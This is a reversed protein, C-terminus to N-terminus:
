HCSKMRLHSSTPVSIRRSQSKRHSRYRVSQVEARAVGGKNSVVELMGPAVPAAAIANPGHALVIGLPKLTLVAAPDSSRADISLTDTDRDHTASAITVLDCIKGAAFNVPLATRTPPNDTVNILFGGDPVAAVDGIVSYQTGNGELKFHFPDGVLRIDQGVDSEASVRLRTQGGSVEYTASTPRAGVRKAKRGQVTFLDTFVRNIDAPAAPDPAGGEERIRTGTIVVHNRFPGGTVQQESVGDGIYGAPVASTGILFPAVEGTAMVAYPDGQSIGLDATHFVRGKDDAELDIFEGYPHFISYKAGPILDDMRVRIRAFVVNAGLAPEGAGGFAAELAMIVRARGRIGMGGVTLQAEAMYYFSEGPFNEPFVRPLAPNPLEEIAPAFPDDANLVIELRTAGDSFWLPFGTDPDIPGASQLRNLNAM